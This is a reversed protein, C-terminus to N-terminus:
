RNPQNKLGTKIQLELQDKVLLGGTEAKQNSSDYTHQLEGPKKPSVQTRLSSYPRALATGETNCHETKPSELSQLASICFFLVFVFGGVRQKRPWPFFRIEATIPM